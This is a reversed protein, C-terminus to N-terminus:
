PQPAGAGGAKGDHTQCDTRSLQNRTPVLQACVCARPCRGLRLPVSCTSSELAFSGSDHQHILASSSLALTANFSADRM